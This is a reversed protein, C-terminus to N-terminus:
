IRIAAYIQPAFTKLNSLDDWGASAGLDAWRRVTYEVGGRIFVTEGGHGRDNKGASFDDVTIGIRGVIATKPDNQYIGYASFRLYGRSTTQNINNNFAFANLANDAEQDFSPTFRKVRIAFLDDLGGIALKGDAFVFKMPVGVAISIAVPDIYVPVGVRVGIWDQLLVTLDLGVAKGPKFKV